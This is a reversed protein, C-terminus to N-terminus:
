EKGDKCQKLINLITQGYNQAKKKGFGQIELLGSLSQPQKSVIDQLLSNSAIIYPPFGLQRAHQNRWTKLATLCPSDSTIIAKEPESPPNAVSHHIGPDQTQCNLCLTWFFRGNHEFFHAQYGLIVESKCLSELSSNPFNGAQLDFELTLIM